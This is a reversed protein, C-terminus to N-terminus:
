EKRVRCRYHTHAFWCMDCVVGRCAICSRQHSSCHLYGCSHCDTLFKDCLYKDCDGCHRKLHHSHPECEDCNEFHNTCYYLNCVECFSACGICLLHLDATEQPCEKCVVLKWSDYCNTCVVDQCTICKSYHTNCYTENCNICTRITINSPNYEDGDISTVYHECANCMICTYDRGTLIKALYANQKELELIRNKQKAEIMSILYVLEDKHLSYL